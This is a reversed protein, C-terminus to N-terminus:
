TTPDRYFWSTPHQEENVWKGHGDVFGVNAGKNHRYDPLSGPFTVITTTNWKGDFSMPCESPYAVQALSWVPWAPNDAKSAILIPNVTYSLRPIAGPAMPIGFMTMLGAVDVQGVKDTPCYIINRNKVYPQALDAITRVGDACLCSGMPLTEDYDQTYMLIALAFQKVNSLCSAQRAKERARAFVPFLIAALIAIIAIVVLLEILTFGKARLRPVM